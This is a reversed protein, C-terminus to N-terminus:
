VHARGIQSVIIGGCNAVPESASAISLGKEPYSLSVYLAMTFASLSIYNIRADFKSEGLTSSFSSSLICLFKTFTTFLHSRQHFSHTSVKEVLQLGINALSELVRIGDDAGISVGELRLANETPILGSPPSGGVASHSLDFGGGGGM